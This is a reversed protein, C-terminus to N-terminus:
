LFPSSGVWNSSMKFFHSSANSLYALNSSTTKVSGMASSLSESSSSRLYRLHLLVTPCTRAETTSSGAMRSSIARSFLCVACRAPSFTVETM